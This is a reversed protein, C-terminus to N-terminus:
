PRVVVLDGEVSLVADTWSRTYESIRGTGDQKESWRWGGIARLLYPMEQQNDDSDYLCTIGAPPERDVPWPSPVATADTWKLANYRHVDHKGTATCAFLEDYDLCLSPCVEDLQMETPWAVLPIDSDTEGCWGHWVDEASGSGTHKHRRINCTYM